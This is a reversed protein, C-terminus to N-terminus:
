ILEKKIVNWKMWVIKCIIVFFSLAFIGTLGNILFSPAIKKYSPTASDILYVSPLPQNIVKKMELYHDKLVYNKRFLFIYKEVLSELRPDDIFDASNYNENNLNEIYNYILENNNSKISYISDKLEKLKRENENYQNEINSFELKRNEEFISQRFNNIEAVQFNAIDAAMQPNENVVNIVISLYKSRTFTVDKLYQDRVKAHSTLESSDFDYYNFLNFKEITRDRMTKSEFLQLLQETDVEYGFQPNTLIENQKFSNLPYVIATSLFKKPIFFTIGIGLLSGIIISYLLLKRNSYLFQIPSISSNM